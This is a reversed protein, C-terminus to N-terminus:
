AVKRLDGEGALLGADVLCQRIRRIEEAGLKVLPPRVAACDLKGMLVLAEKEGLHHALLAALALAQQLLLLLRLRRVGGFTLLDLGRQGGGCRRHWESSLARTGPQTPATLAM